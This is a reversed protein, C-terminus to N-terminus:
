FRIQNIRSYGEPVFWRTVYATRGQLATTWFARTGAKTRAVRIRKNTGIRRVMLRSANARQETWAIWRGNLSANAILAIKSSAMITRRGRAIGYLYVRSGKPGATHWALRGKALAPRGLDTRAGIRAVVRVTNKRMNRLRLEKRGGGIDRRFALWPWMLAPKSANPVRAIEEGDAWRVIRISGGEDYALRPGHLSPTQGPLELPPADPIRVVVVPEKGARSTYAFVNGSSAPDLQSGPGLPMPGAGAAPALALALAVACAALLLGNARVLAPRLRALREVAATLEPERLAPLVVMLARGAGYLSFCAAAALPRGLAVAAACAVWFTAVPQFTFFGAGLGAGYGTSWVPLPLRAHWWQPVQRRAQPLPLRVVGLERLAAVAALAAAVVLAATGGVLAGVLGFALGVLAASAVAGLTFLTLAIRRRRRSGCVAPTITEIM